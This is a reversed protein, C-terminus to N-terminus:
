FVNSYNRAKPAISVSSSAPFCYRFEGSCAPEAVFLNLFSLPRRFKLPRRQLPAFVRTRWFAAEARADTISHRKESLKFVLRFGNARGVVVGLNILSLCVHCDDFSIVDGAVYDVDAIRSFRAAD